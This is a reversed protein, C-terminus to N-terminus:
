MLLLPNDSGGLLSRPLRSQSLPHVPDCLDRCGRCVGPHLRHRRSSLLLIIERWSGPPLVRTWIPASLLASSSPVTPYFCYEFFLLLFCGDFYAVFLPLINKAGSLCSLLDTPDQYLCRFFLLAGILCWSNDFPMLYVWVLSSLSPSM